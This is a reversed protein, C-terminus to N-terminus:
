EDGLGYRNRLGLATIVTAIGVALVVYFITQLTRESAQQEKSKVLDSIEGASLAAGSSLHSIASNMASARVESLRSEEVITFAFMSVFFAVGIVFIAFAVDRDDRDQLRWAAAVGLLCLMALSFTLEGPDFAAISIDHSRIVRIAAGIIFPTLPLVVNRALWALARRRQPVKTQPPPPAAPPKIEFDPVPESM